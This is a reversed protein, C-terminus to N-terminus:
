RGLIQRRVRVIDDRGTLKYITDIVVPMAEPSCTPGVVEVCDLGAEIRSGTATFLITEAFNLDPMRNRLVLLYSSAPGTHVILSQHDIVEWGNLRLRPISDVREFESFRYKEAIVVQSSVCGGTVLLIAGLLHLTIAMDTYAPNRIRM